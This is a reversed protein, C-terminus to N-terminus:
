RLQFRDLIGHSRLVPEFDRLVQQPNNTNTSLAAARLLLIGLLFVVDLRLNALDGPPRSLFPAMESKPIRIESKTNPYCCESFIV